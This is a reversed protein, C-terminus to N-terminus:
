HPLKNVRYVSGSESVLRRTKLEPLNFNSPRQPVSLRSHWQASQGPRGMEHRPSVFMECGSISSDATMVLIPPAGVRLSADLSKPGDSKSCMFSKVAGIIIAYFKSIVRQM